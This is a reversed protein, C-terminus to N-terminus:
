SGAAAELRAAPAPDSVNNWSRQQVKTPTQGPIRGHFRIQRPLLNLLLLVILLPDLEDIIVPGVPFRVAILCESSGRQRCSLTGDALVRSLDPGLTTEGGSVKLLADLEQEAARRIQDPNAGMQSLLTRVVAQDPDLLAVLLHMPELRQHGQEQAVAQAWQVAAQSKLTLKDFRFGM